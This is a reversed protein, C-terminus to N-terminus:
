QKTVRKEVLRIDGFKSLDRRDIPWRSRENQGCSLIGRIVSEPSISGHSLVNQVLRLISGKCLQTKPINQNKLTGNSVSSALGTKGASAIFWEMAESNIGPVILKELVYLRKQVICEAIRLTVGVLHLLKQFYEGEPALIQVQGYKRLTIILSPILDDKRGAYRVAKSATICESEVAVVTLPVPNREVRFWLSTSRDRVQKLACQWDLDMNDVSHLCDQLLQYRFEEDIGLCLLGHAIGCISLVASQSQWVGQHKFLSTAGTMLQFLKNGNQTMVKTFSNKGGSEALIRQDLLKILATLSEPCTDVQMTKCLMRVYARELDERWAGEEQFNEVELAAKIVAVMMNVSRWFLHDPIEKLGDPTIYPLYVGDILTKISLIANVIHQDLRNPYIDQGYLDHERVTYLLFKLKWFLEHDLDILHEVLDVTCMGREDQKHHDLLMKEPDYVGGTDLVLRGPQPEVSFGAGVFIVKPRTGNLGAFKKQGFLIILALAMLVDIDPCQHVVIENIQFRDKINQSM